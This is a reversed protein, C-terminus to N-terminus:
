RKQHFVNGVVLTFLGQRKRSGSIEMVGGEERGAQTLGQLRKEEL